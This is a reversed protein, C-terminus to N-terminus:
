TLRFNDEFFNDLEFFYLIYFYMGDNYSIQTDM